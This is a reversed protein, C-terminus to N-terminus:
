PFDQCLMPIIADYYVYYVNSFLEIFFQLHYPIQFYAYLLMSLFNALKIKNLINMKAKQLQCLAGIFMLNLGSSIKDFFRYIHVNLCRFVQERQKM